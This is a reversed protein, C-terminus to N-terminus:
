GIPTESQPDTTNGQDAANRSPELPQEPSGQRAAEMGKIFGQQFTKNIHKQAEMLPRSNQVIEKYYALENKLNRRRVIRDTRM